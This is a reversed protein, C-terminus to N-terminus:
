EPMPNTVSIAPFERWESGYLMHGAAKKGVCFAQFAPQGDVREWGIAGDFRISRTAYRCTKPHEPGFKSIQAPTLPHYLDEPNTIQSIPLWEGWQKFHFAVRADIIPQHDVHCVYAQNRLESAWRPHMPRADPGSEGGVILWDIRRLYDRSIVVPGLLPECSLGRWWADIKIIEPVRADAREQDEVSAIIGAKISRLFDSGYGDIGLLYVVHEVRKTTFMWELRDSTKAALEWLRKRAEQPGELDFVDALSASFVRARRGYTEFAKKAWALPKKWNDDSTVRRPQGAGWKAFHRRKDMDREAYCKFCGPSVKTCGVWPNFTHDCWSIESNEM